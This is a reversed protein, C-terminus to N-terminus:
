LSKLSIAAKCSKPHRDCAFSGSESLRARCHPLLTKAAHRRRPLAPLDHRRM